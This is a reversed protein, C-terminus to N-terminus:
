CGEVRVGEVVCVVGDAGSGVKVPEQGNSNGDYRWCVNGKSGLVCSDRLATRDGLNGNVGAVVKAGDV